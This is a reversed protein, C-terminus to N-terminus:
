PIISKISKICLTNPGIKIEDGMEANMLTKGIPSEPSIIKINKYDRASVPALIIDMNKNGTLEFLKFMNPINAAHIRHCTAIGTELEHIRKGLAICKEQAEEKFTDYRSEMAGKFHKSTEIEDNQAKVQLELEAKLQNVVINFINLM